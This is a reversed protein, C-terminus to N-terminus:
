RLRRGDLVVTAAVLAAGALVAFFMVDSSDIVGGAFQRLRESISLADLWGGVTLSAAGVHAFWLLLSVAMGVMAAVPQASTLSSAMVGVGALAGALLALGLFGSVAPGADPHGFWALLPVVLATPALVGLVTMWGALWKGVVIVRSPVPIAELLDLTGSRDEEAVARMTVVPVVALLLFGAVPFLPQVIAQRRVEVQDVFLLGVVAQFLAGVVFPVPSCWLTRLEKGAVARIM